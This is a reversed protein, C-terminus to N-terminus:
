APFPTQLALLLGSGKMPVVRAGEGAPVAPPHFSVAHSLAPKRGPSLAPLSLFMCGPLLLRSRLIGAFLGGGIAATFSYILGEGHEPTFRIGHRM